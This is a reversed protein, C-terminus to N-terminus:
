GREGETKPQYYRATPGCDAPDDRAERGAFYAVDDCMCVDDWPDVMHRCDECKPTDTM